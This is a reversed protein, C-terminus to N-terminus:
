NLQNNKIHHIPPLKPIKLFHTIIADGLPEFLLWDGGCDPCTHYKAFQVVSTQQTTLAAVLVPEDDDPREEPYSQWATM